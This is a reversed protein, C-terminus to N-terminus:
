AFLSSVRYFIDISSLDMPSYYIWVNWVNGVGSAVNLPEGQVPILLNLDGNYGWGLKCERGWCSELDM